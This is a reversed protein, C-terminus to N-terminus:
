VIQKKKKFMIEVNHCLMSNEINFYTTNTYQNGINFVIQIYTCQFLTNM